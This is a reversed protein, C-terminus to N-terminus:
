PATLVHQTADWRDRSERDQSRHASPKSGRIGGRRWRPPCMPARPASSCRGGTRAASRAPMPSAGTPSRSGTPSPAARRSASSARGAAAPSGSGARRTAASATPSFSRVAPDRLDAAAGARRGRRSRVGVAKRRRERRRDVDTRRREAGHWQRGDASRVGRTRRRGGRRLSDARHAATPRPQVEGRLLTGGPQRDHRQHWGARAGVPRLALGARRRPLAPRTGCGDGLYASRWRSRLRARRPATRRARGGRGRRGRFAPPGHPWVHRLFVALRRALAPCETFAFGDALVTPTALDIM